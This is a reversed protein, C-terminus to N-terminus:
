KYIMGSDSSSYVCVLGKEEILKKAKRPDIRKPQKMFTYEKKKNDWVPEESALDYVWRAESPAGIAWEKYKLIAWM